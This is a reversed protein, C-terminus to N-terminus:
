FPQQQMHGERVREASAVSLHASGCYFGRVCRFIRTLCPCGGSLGLSSSEITRRFQVRCPSKATKMWLRCLQAQWGYLRSRRCRLGSGGLHIRLAARHTRHEAFRSAFHSSLIFSLATGNSCAFLPSSARTLLQDYGQQTQAYRSNARSRKGGILSAGSAPDALGFRAAEAQKEAQERLLQEAIVFDQAAQRRREQRASQRDRMVAVQEEKQMKKQRAIERYHEHQRMQRRVHARKKEKKLHLADRAIAQEKEQQRLLEAERIAAEQQKKAHAEVRLRLQEAAAAAKAKRM